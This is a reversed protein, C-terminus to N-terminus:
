QFLPWRPKTDRLDVLTPPPRKLEPIPEQTEFVGAGERDFALQDRRGDHRLDV